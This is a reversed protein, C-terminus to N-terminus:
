KILKGIRSFKNMETEEEIPEVEEIPTEVTEKLSDEIAAVREGLAIVDAILSEIKANIEDIAKNDEEEIPTEEEVPTEEVIPTEEELLVEENVTNENEVEVILSKLKELIDMFKEKINNQNNEKSFNYPIVEFIGELSFGNFTGNTAANWIDEDNIKYTCIISGNPVDFPSPKTEDKIYLEVLSVKGKEIINGDHQFDIENFTNDRLMKEAMVRLTEASYQIYYEYGNDCRYIPTDCVMLPATLCHKIDDLSFSLKEQKGFALWNVETAPADVMSVALVGDEDSNIVANYIPLEM